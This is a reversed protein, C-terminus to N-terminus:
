KNKIIEFLLIGTAVSVNLSQVTGQMPIYIQQDSMKILTKSVGVSENGVIIALPFNYNVDLYSQANNTLTSSYIWYNQRKLKDIIPQLSKAKCIKLNVFGGSSIKMVVDNIKAARKDPIIIHKIGAANTTRLIAGLNHSDLIHDLILIIKPQDKLIQEFSCYNYNSFDDHIIAVIGQHNLSTLSNLHDKTTIEFPINNIDFTLPKTSLIKIIGYNNKIADIVSNKGCIIKPM